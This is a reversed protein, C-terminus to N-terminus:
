HMELLHRLAQELNVFQFKFGSAILKAPEVRTSALLLPGAMVGLALKAAFGPLSLITPRQLVHGLVKTFERNTVPHPSVANVPGSLTETQMVHLFAANLDDQAIWSWFQTGDGITGGIGARFPGLMRQLAGGGAGLVLGIRLNVVRIGAQAAPNAAAEWAKCVDPLFGLGPPSDEQLLKPGRDGYYGTASACVLVRPKRRREALTGALFLTGIVRSERIRRKRAVTWRGGAINEGALHVVADFGELAATNVSGMIPNWEIDDSGPTSSRRVMCRVDHGRSLLFQVLASGIFGTAGTVLVKM